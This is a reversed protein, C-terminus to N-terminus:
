SAQRLHLDDDERYGVLVAGEELRHLAARLAIQQFVQLGVLEESQEGADFPPFRRDGAAQGAPDQLFKGPPPAVPGLTLRPYQAPAPRPPSRGSPSAPSSVSRSCSTSRVTLLPAEFRSTAAASCM